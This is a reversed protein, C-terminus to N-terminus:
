WKSRKEAQSSFDSSRMAGRSWTAPPSSTPCGEQEATWRRIAALHGLSNGTDNVTTVGHALLLKLMWRASALDGLHVHMDALGPIVTKGELRIVRAKGPEPPAGQGVAAIRGGEIRVWANAVPRAGTGDILTGGVLM